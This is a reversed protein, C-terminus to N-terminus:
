RCRVSSRLLLGPELCIKLLWMGSSGSRASETEIVFVDGIRDTVRPWSTGYTMVTVFSTPNSRFSTFM